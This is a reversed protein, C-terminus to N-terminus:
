EGRVMTFFDVRTRDIDEATKRKSAALSEALPTIVKALVGPRLTDDQLLADMVAALEAHRFRTGKIYACGGAGGRIRVTCRTVPIEGFNFPNGNGDAKARVMVMGTEPRRIFDYEPSMELGKWASELAEFPAGAMIGMWEQRESFRKTM